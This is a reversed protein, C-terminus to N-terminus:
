RKRIKRFASKFTLKVRKDQLELKNKVLELVKRQKKTDLQIYVDYLRKKMIDNYKETIEQIRKECNNIREPLNGYAKEISELEDLIFDDDNIGANEVFDNLRLKKHYKRSVHRKLTSCEQKLPKLGDKLVDKIIDEPILNLRIEKFYELISETVVNENISHYKKNNDYAKYYIYRGKKIDGTMFKGTKQFTLLQSYLFDHKKIKEYGSTNLIEQVQAFLESNIISKHIGKIKGDCGPFEYYGTYFTNKLMNALSARPIKRSPQKSYYFGQEYLAERLSNISYQGTAYLEYAKKVLNADKPVIVVKGNYIKYGHPVLCPRKGTKARAILGMQRIEKMHEVEFEANAVLINFLYKEYSKFPKQITLNEKVFVIKTDYKDVLERIFYFDPQNRTLRNLTYVMIVDVRDKTKQCELIEKFIPRNSGYLASKNEYYVNRVIIGHKKCYKRCEKEQTDRSMGDEQSKSSLRIYIDTKIKQMTTSREKQNQYHYM